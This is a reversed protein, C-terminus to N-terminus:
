PGGDQEALITGMTVLGRAGLEDLHRERCRWCLWLPGVLEPDGGGCWNCGEEDHICDEYAEGLADGVLCSEVPGRASRLDICRPCTWEHNALLRRRESTTLWRLTGLIRTRRSM